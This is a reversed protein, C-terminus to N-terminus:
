VLLVVLGGATAVLEDGATQTKPSAGAGIVGM